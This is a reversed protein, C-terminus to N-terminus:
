CFGCVLVLFMFGGGLVSVSFLWMCFVGCFRFVLLVLGVWFCEILFPHFKHSKDSSGLVSTRCFFFFFFLQTFLVM